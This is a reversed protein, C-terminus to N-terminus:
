AFPLGVVQASGSSGQLETGESEYDVHAYGLAIWGHAPSEVVSTLEGVEREGDRLTDGEAAPGELKLGVLRHKVGGLNTARAIVEQGVFCGKEYDIAYELRAEMPITDSDIDQVDRARGAEVRVM